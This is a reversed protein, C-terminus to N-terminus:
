RGKTGEERQFTVKLNQCQLDFKFESMSQKISSISNISFIKSINGLESEYVAEHNEVQRILYEATNLTLRPASCVLYLIVIISLTLISNRSVKSSNGGDGCKHSEHVGGKISRTSGKEDIHRYLVKM